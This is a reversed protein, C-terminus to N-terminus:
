LYFFSDTITHLGKFRHFICNATATNHLLLLLVFSTIQDACHHYNDNNCHQNNTRTPM